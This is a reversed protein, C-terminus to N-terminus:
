LEWCQRPAQAGARQGAAMCISGSGADSGTCLSDCSTLETLSGPAKFQM